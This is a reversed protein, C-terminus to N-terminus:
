PPTNQPLHSHNPLTLQQALPAILKKRQPLPSSVRGKGRIPGGPLGPDVGHHRNVVPTVSVPKCIAINIIIAGKSIIVDAIDDLSRYKQSRELPM